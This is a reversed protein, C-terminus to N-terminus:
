SLDPQGNPWNIYSAASADSWSFSTANAQVECSLTTCKMTSFGIWLDFASSDLRSTVYQEEDASNISVLDGGDRICDSRAATWSKRSSKRRYCSSGFGQWGSASDCAPAPNPNPRKCIYQRRSTCTEDNWQGNSAGQVQGCDENDAWNDPQGEKWYSLYPYFVSGDSWEWNGESAIDNLGIWYISSSIQTRVWTREHLDQISMLNAGKSICDELADHWSKMDTSFYYCREEYPRWGQECQAAGYHLLGALALAFVLMSFGSFTVSHKEKM